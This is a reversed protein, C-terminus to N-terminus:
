RNASGTESYRDSQSQIESSIENKRPTRGGPNKVISDRNETKVRQFHEKVIRDLEQKSNHVFLDFLLSFNNVLIIDEKFNSKGDKFQSIIDSSKIKHSAIETESQNPLVEYVKLIFDISRSPNYLPLSFNLALHDFIIKGGVLKVKLPENM